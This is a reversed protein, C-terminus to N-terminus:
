RHHKGGGGGHSSSHGGAISHGGFSSKGGGYSKPEHSGGFLHFGGGSKPAKGYSEAFARGSSASYAREEHGRGQFSSSSSARYSQLSGGYGRYGENPRSYDPRSYTEQRAIPASHNYALLPAPRTGSYGTHGTYGAYGRNYSSAVRAVSPAGYARMGGHPLGWDRVTVSHSYYTSHNFLVAQLLWNLGWGLWGWPMSRFATMAIGPGYRLLSSGLFSAVSELLSFGPYPTVPQGYVAWPDYQPVYVVNQNVPALEIRGQDYSVAEQPTSQLNGAAEARQRLVQVSELVDQPQNYYANGLDTMWRVNRDMEALVQPFATLAKVSPDWSQQDAGAAIQDAGARGMSQLWRDAEVVQAPYTSAALVQAVLTDPYLAIPATLQEVQGANLFQGAGQSYGQAYGQQSSGQGAAAGNLPQGYGSQSYGPQPYSPQAYSQQPPPQQGYGRQQMYGYGQPQLGQPQPAYQGSSSGAGYGSGAYAGGNYPYGNPASYGYSYPSSQGSYGQYPVPYPVQQAALEGAGLASMSVVLCSAVARRLGQAVVVGFRLLSHSSFHSLRQRTQPKMAGRKMGRGLRM